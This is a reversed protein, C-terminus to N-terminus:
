RTRIYPGLWDLNNRELFRWFLPFVSFYDLIQGRVTSLDDKYCSAYIVRILVLIMDSQPTINLNRVNITIGKM